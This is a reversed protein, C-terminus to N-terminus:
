KDDSAARKAELTADNDVLWQELREFERLWVTGYEYQFSMILARMSEELIDGYKQEDFQIRFAAEYDNQNINAYGLFLGANNPHALESLIEYQNYMGQYKKNSQELVTKTNIAAIGTSGDKSGFILSSTLAQWSDFNMRGEIFQETKLNAYILIALTEMCSRTLIIAGMIHNSQKLSFAQSLLDTLRWSVLERLMLYRFPSKWKHAAPNRAYLAAIEIKPCLSSCWGELTALIDIVENDGNM